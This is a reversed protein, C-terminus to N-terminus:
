SGGTQQQFVEITDDDEMELQLTVCVYVVLLWWCVCLLVVYLNPILFQAVWLCVTLSQLFVLQDYQQLNVKIVENYMNSSVGNPTSDPGVSNGDFVFRITTM